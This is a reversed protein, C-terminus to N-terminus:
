IVGQKLLISLNTCEMTSKKNVQSKAQARHIPYVQCRKDANEFIGYGRSAFIQFDSLSSGLYPLEWNAWVELQM